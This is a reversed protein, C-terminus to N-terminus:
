FMCMNRAPLMLVEDRADTVDAHGFGVGMLGHALLWILGAWFM